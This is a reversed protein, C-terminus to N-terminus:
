WVDQANASTDDHSFAMKNMEMSLEVDTPGSAAPPKDPKKLLAQAYGGVPLKNETQPTTPKTSSGGLAPFHEAGLDINTEQTKQKTQQAPHEQQRQPKKKQGKKDHLKQSPEMENTEAKMSHSPIQQDSSGAQKKRNQWKRNNLQKGNTVNQHFKDTGHPHHPAPRGQFYVNAPPNNPYGGVMPRLFSQNAYGYPYYPSSQARIHIPGHQQPITYVYGYAPHPQQMTVYPFVVPYAMPMPQLPASSAIPTSSTATAGDSAPAPKVDSKLCGRVPNNGIYKDRVSALAKVALEETEFTVFWTDGIDPRAAKPTISGSAFLQLVDQTSVTCPIDRLIVINREARNTNLDAAPPLPHTPVGLSSSATAQSSPSSPTSSVTKPDDSSNTPATPALLAKWSTSQHPSIWAGDQSVTVVSSGQLAMRVLRPDAMPLMHLPFHGINNLFANIQRVKPFNCITHIPVAGIHDSARLQSQLFADKALNEPSFYFEIQARLPNLSTTPITGQNPVQQHQQPPLLM